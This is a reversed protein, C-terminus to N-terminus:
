VTALSFTFTLTLQPNKEVASLHGAYYGGITVYGNTSTPEAQRVYQGDLTGLRMTTHTGAIIGTITNTFGNVAGTLTMPAPLLQLSYDSSGPTSASADAVLSLGGSAIEQVETLDVYVPKDSENKFLYYGGSGSTTGTEVRPYTDQDVYFDWGAGTQFTVNIIGNVKHYILYVTEHATPASIAPVGTGDPTDGANYSGVKYGQYIYIDGNVTIDDLSGGYSYPPATPTAYTDNQFVAGTSEDVYREVVTYIRTYAFDNGTSDANISSLTINAPNVMCGTQAPPTIVVTSGRPASPIAYYGDADATVSQISGGNITYSVALGGVSGGSLTGSVTCGNQTWQAYLTTDETVAFTDGESYPTGTGDPATNWGAFTYGTRALSGTNGQVTILDKPVGADSAPATGSDASNRGYTVTYVTGYIEIGFVGSSASFNDAALSTRVTTTSAPVNASSYDTSITPFSDSWTNATLNFPSSQAWWSTYNRAPTYAYTGSDFVSAIQASPYYRISSVGSATLIPRYVSGIARAYSNMIIFSEPNDLIINKFYCVGFSSEVEHDYLLFSSGPEMKFTSGTGGYLSSLTHSKICIFRVDANQKCTVNTLPQGPECFGSASICTFRADRGVTFNGVGYFINGSAINAGNDLLVDAGDAIEVTSASGTLNFFEDATYASLDRIVTVNGEFRVTGSNQVLEQSPFYLKFLTLNSDKIIL